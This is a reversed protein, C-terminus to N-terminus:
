PLRVVQLSDLAFWAEGKRARLACILEVERDRELEFPLALRTWDRTGVWEHPRAPGGESVRLGVGKNRGYSLAEVGALRASAEFRYRGEPLLVKARWSASTAPGARLHLAARGDPAPSRDLKGGAPEDVPRWGTLRAVGNEFALPQPEPERLQQELSRRRQAVRDKFRAVASKLERAERSSLLPSVRAVFADACRQVAAVDLVSATLMALRERYRGRGEPTELLARAVLGYMAPRITADPRGFLQDMGHPLFVLRGTAPDHYIRFNNRALCYGDRHGVIVETAAFAIFRDVDLVRALAQWRQELNPERAASALAQLDHRDDPGDGLDRELAEDVDHGAGTDYLNGRTNQFHLGLFEEAFGEKLVYLGLRRGNLEVLAHTVRPAPVGAVRFLEGGVLENCYGPDEVSNNLHIKRLGHFTQGPHFRAFDLTLAPKDELSRFSGKSGKLHVGVSEFVREGDQVRAPVYQRAERRLAAVHEATLTLRLCPIRQASFLGAGPVSKPADAAPLRGQLM